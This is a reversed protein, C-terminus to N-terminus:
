SRRTLRGIEALWIEDDTGKRLYPDRRALKFFGTSPRWTEKLVVLASVMPEKGTPSLIKTCDELLYPLPGEYAPVNHGRDGLKEAVDSYFLPQYERTAWDQLIDLLDELAASYEADGVKM